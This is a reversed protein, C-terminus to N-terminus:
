RHRQGIHRVKIVITAEQGVRLAEPDELFNITNGQPASIIDMWAFLIEGSVFSLSKSLVFQSFECNKLMHIYFSIEHVM